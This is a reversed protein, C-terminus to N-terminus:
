HHLYIELENGLSIPNNPKAKKEAEAKHIQFESPRPEGGGTKVGFLGVVGSGLSTVGEVAGSGLSTVGQLLMNEPAGYFYELVAILLANYTPIEPEIFKINTPYFM